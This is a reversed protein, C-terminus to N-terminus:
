KAEYWSEGSDIEIRLPVKMKIVNEMEFKVIESIKELETKVVDFVLEDHVQILMKSVLGEQKIRKEINIMAIKIIDASTGQIPTNLAIREGAQVLIRNKQKLEDIVRIRNFLTKVFGDKHAQKITDDMYKKVGPFEELYKDIFIKAETIPIDLDESLGFPSIGYVIGFNVAKASRRMEKTVQYLEVDFIKSATIAHIDKDDKFAQILMEADSIHALVRLEIQSYDAALILNGKNPVFAKRIKSGYPTRIPINQINPDKSSLRGTRTLAQNYITHIKGDEYVLDILGDIYNSSLKSLNRYEIILPIIDHDYKLKELVDRGTSFGTKTKKYTQLGLKEFLIEGLQKTSLINFNEGALNYIENAILEMKISIERGMEKLFKIDINVGDIEMRALVFALPLEIESYLKLVEKKDMEDIFDNCTDFIYRAKMSARKAIVNIDEEKKDFYPLEEGKITALESIDEKVNYELLYGALFLDYVFNLNYKNLLVYHKKIDYTKIKKTKLFPIFKEFLAFPIFYNNKEDCVSVGFISAKHYNEESTEIFLSIEEDLDLNTKEDVIIFCLEQKDKKVEKINKLFSNFELEKYLATLAEVNSGYYRFDDIGKDLPVDENITVLKYSMYANEKDVNLKEQLKPTLKDINEYVGDLTKYDKLLKIATKEGIGKVGPINDSSDGMLAKLDIMQKPEFGYKEFFTTQTMLDFDGSKLLKVNVDKGILQLLDKDSSIITAEYEDNNRARKAFTGIIDDAENADDDIWVIGMADLLEKAKKFQLILEEPIEARGAKYEPYMEHRFTKGKDFAVLLYKPKELDIIKNLMNVLGYLANTPFGSSNRMISGTYATAFYSRYILNNGDVLVIKEM